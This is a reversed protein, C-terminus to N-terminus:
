ALLMCLDMGITRGIGQQTWCAGVVTDNSHVGGGAKKKKEIM